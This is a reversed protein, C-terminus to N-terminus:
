INKEFDFLWEKADLNMDKFRQISEIRKDIIFILEDRTYLKDSLIVYGDKLKPILVADDYDLVESNEKVNTEEMEIWATEIKGDAKVYKLIFDFDILPLGLSPDSTAVVKKAKTRRSLAICNTEDYVKQYKIYKGILRKVGNSHSVVDGEKPQELSTFYLHQHNINTTKVINLGSGIRPFNNKDLYLISKGNTSLVSVNVQKNKM